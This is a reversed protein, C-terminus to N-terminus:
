SRSRRTPVASTREATTGAAAGCAVFWVRGARAEGVVPAFEQDYVLATRRGRQAVVESVQPGAFATNLYIAHVGLKSCAISAEVFGRHNRCM